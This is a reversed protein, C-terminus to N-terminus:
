PGDPHRCASNRGATAGCARRINVRHAFLVVAVMFLYLIAAATGDGGPLAVSPLLLCLPSLFLATLVTRTANRFVAFLPLGILLGAVLMRPNLVLMGGAFTALGKGGRFRLPLPWVHGAVAALLAAAPLWSAGGGHRALGVALAGKGADCALTLLFGWIGLLRGVNRSGTSGSAHTRIDRGTALIVVLYGASFCGLLYATLIVLVVRTM